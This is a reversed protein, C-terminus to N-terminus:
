RSFSQFQVGQIRIRTIAMEVAYMDIHLNLLIYLYTCSDISRFIRIRPPNHLYRLENCRRISLSGMDLVTFNMENM